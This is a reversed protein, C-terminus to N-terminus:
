EFSTPKRNSPTKTLEIEKPRTGFRTLVVSGLGATLIIFITVWYIFTFIGYLPLLGEGFIGTLRGIISILEVAIIGLFVTLLPTQPKINTNQKIKEGVYLSVSTYGLLLAVIVVLPLLIALPIGIITILLLVFAPLFLVWALLGVLISKLFEKEVKDKIKGVNRPVVSFVIMGLFLLLLIKVIKTVIGFGRLVVKPQLLYPFFSIGPIKGKLAVREGKIIGGPEIKVEGGVSTADEEIIGTSTVLIDGGLAVVSGDVVGKVVVDGGLATVDGEIEQDEDIIIDVRVKVIDKQILSLKKEKKEKASLIEEKLIVKETVEAKYKYEKGEPTVLIIEDDGTETEIAKLTDNPTIKKEECFIKGPSFLSFILFLNFILIKKTWNM